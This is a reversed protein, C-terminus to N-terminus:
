IINHHSRLFEGVLEAGGAEISIKPRFGIENIIKNISIIRESTVFEYEDYKLGAIRSGIKAMTRSISKKPPEVNLMKAAFEYLSRVTHSQGDTVNYIQNASKPNKSVALMSDAADNIHILSIHNNGGGVYRLKGQELLSFIKFFSEEYGPGYLTSFRLITHKINPHADSYARIVEEQMVKSKSYNSEPRTESEETLVENPRRYGYVSVSGACIIHMAKDGNALLAANILNETGVVNIEIFEDYTHKYNYVASALHFINDVGALAKEMNGEDSPQKLTLDAIYPKAGPPLHKWEESSSPDTRVLVRVEHGLEILKKTVLAGLRSTAGTVLDVPVKDAASGDSAKAM